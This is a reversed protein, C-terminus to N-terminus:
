FIEFADVFPQSIYMNTPSFTKMPEMPSQKFILLLRIPSLGWCAQRFKLYQKVAAVIGSSEQLFLLLREKELYKLILKNVLFIM